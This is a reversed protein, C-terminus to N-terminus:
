PADFIALGSGKLVTVSHGTTLSVTGDDALANEAANLPEGLWNFGVEAAGDFAASQIGVGFYAGNGLQQVFTTGRASDTLVAAHARGPNDPDDALVTWKENAVDFTVWCPVGTSAARQRAFTLDRLLQRAASAGRTASVTGITPVAVAALIAVIVIVAIMELLTFGSTKRSWRTWPSIM